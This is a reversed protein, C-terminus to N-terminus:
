NGGILYKLGFVIGALTDIGSTHGCNIIEEICFNIKIEDCYILSNYLNILPSSFNGKFAEKYYNISIDTTLNEDIALTMLSTYFDKGIIASISNVWLLGILFDDGSPTLGRGRGILKRLSADIQKTSNSNLNEQIGIIFKNNSILSDISEDFGTNDTVSLLTDKLYKISNKINSDEVINLHSDYVRSKSLDIVFEEAIFSSEERDWIIGKLKNNNIIDYVDEDKLHIGFPLEGNKRTGIFVLGNKGILNLGNQFSSHVDLNRTDGIISRINNSASLAYIKNM